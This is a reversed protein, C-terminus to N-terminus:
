KFDNESLRPKALASVMESSCTILTKKLIKTKTNSKEFHENFTMGIFEIWSMSTALLRTNVGSHSSGTEYTMFHHSKEANTEERDKSSSSISPQQNTPINLQNRPESKKKFDVSTDVISSLAEAEIPSSNLVVGNKGHILLFQATIILLAV